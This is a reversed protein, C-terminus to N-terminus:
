KLYLKGYRLEYSVAMDKFLIQLAREVPVKNVQISVKRNVDVIQDSYVMEVGVQQKISLLVRELPTNKFDLSLLAQQQAYVVLSGMWLALAVLVARCLQKQNRM